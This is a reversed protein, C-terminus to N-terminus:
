VQQHFYLVSIIILKMLNGYTQPAAAIWRLTKMIQANIQVFYSIYCIWILPRFIVNSM